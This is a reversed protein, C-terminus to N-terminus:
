VVANQLLYNATIAATLQISFHFAKMRCFVLEFLLLLSLTGNASVSPTHPPLTRRLDATIKQLFNYNFTGNFAQYSKGNLRQKQELFTM